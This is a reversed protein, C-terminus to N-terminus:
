LGTPAGPIRAALGDLLAQLGFDFTDDPAEAYDPGSVSGIRDRLRPFQSAAETAQQVVAGLVAAVDGGEREIRRTLSATAAAPAADLPLLGHVRM